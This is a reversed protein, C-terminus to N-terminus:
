IRLHKFQRRSLTSPPPEEPNVARGRLYDELDQEEIRVSGRGLGIRVHRILKRRCLGYVTTPSVSLLEAAEQVSLLKM